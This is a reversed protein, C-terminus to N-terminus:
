INNPSCGSLMIIDNQETKNSQIQINMFNPPKIDGNDIKEIVSNCADVFNKYFNEIFLQIPRENLCEVSTGNGLLIEKGPLNAHLLGCRLDKYLINDISVYKNLGPLKNIATKFAYPPNHKDHWPIKLILKGLFEIGAAILFFAFYPHSKRLSGIEAILVNQIYEKASITAM